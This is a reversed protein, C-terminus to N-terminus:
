PLVHYQWCAIVQVYHDIQMTEDTVIHKQSSSARCSKRRAAAPPADLTSTSDTSTCWEYDACLNQRPADDACHMMWVSEALRIHTSSIGIRYQKTTDKSDAFVCSILRILVSHRGQTIIDLERVVQSGNNDRPKRQWSSYNWTKCLSFWDLTM